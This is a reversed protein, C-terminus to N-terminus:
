GNAHKRLVFKAISTLSLEDNNEVATLLDIFEAVGPPCHFRRGSLEARAASILEAAERMPAEDMNPFHAEGRRMLHEVLAAGSPVELDHVVCRRLFADPLKRDTNTTLMVLPEVHGEGIQKNVWGVGPVFFRSSGLADLLANPVTLDTKDIEDILLVVGKAASTGELPVEPRSEVDRAREDANEWHFAWWLPGPAIYNSRPLRESALESPNEGGRSAQADALRAVADYTWMLEHAETRADVVRVVLARGLAKAVAMALQSKGTGPEGRVLLPRGCALATSVALVSDPDFVHHPTRGDVKPLEQIHPVPVKAIRYETM